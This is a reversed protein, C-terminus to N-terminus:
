PTNMNLPIFADIYCFHTDPTVLPLSFWPFRPTHSLDAVLPCWHSSPQLCFPCPGPLSSLSSPSVPRCCLSSNSLLSFLSDLLVLFWAPLMKEKAKSMSIPLPSFGTPFLPLRFCSPPAHMHFATNNCSLATERDELGPSLSWLGQVAGGTTLCVCTVHTTQKAWVAM